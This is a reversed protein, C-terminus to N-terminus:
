PSKRDNSLNPLSSLDVNMLEAFKIPADEIFKSADPKDSSDVNAGKKKLVHRYNEICIQLECSHMYAIILLRLREDFYLHKSGDKVNELLREVKENNLERRANIALGMMMIERSLSAMDLLLSQIEPSINAWPIKKTKLNDSDRAPRGFIQRINGWFSALIGGLIFAFFWDSSIVGWVWRLADLVPGEWDLLFRDLGRAQAWTEINLYAVVQVPIAFALLAM